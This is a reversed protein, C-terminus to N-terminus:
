SSDHGKEKRKRTGELIIGPSSRFIVLEGWGLMRREFDTKKQKKTGLVGYAGGRCRWDCDEEELHKGESTKKEEKISTRACGERLNHFV